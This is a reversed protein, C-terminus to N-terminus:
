NDTEVCEPINLKHTTKKKHKCLKGFTMSNEPVSHLMNETSTAYGAVLQQLPLTRKRPYLGRGAGSFKKIGDVPTM